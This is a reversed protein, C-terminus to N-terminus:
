KLKNYKIKSNLHKYKVENKESWDRIEVMKDIILNWYEYSSLEDSNNLKSVYYKALKFIHSALFKRYFKYNNLKV